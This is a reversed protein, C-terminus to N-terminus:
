PHQVKESSGQMFARFCQNPSAKVAYGTKHEKLASEPLASAKEVSM